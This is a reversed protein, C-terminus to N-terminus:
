SCSLLCPNPLAWSMATRQPSLSINLKEFTRVRLAGSGSGWFIKSVGNLGGKIGSMDEKLSMM